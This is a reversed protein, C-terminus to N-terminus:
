HAHASAGGSPLVELLAAPTKMGRTSTGQAPIDAWDLQGSACTQLVRFWLAGAQAPLTARLVFEDYWDDPLAQAPNQVTWSIEVVDERVTKGHNDYPQALPARQTTLTWGAKPMPKAGRVGAPIFVRIGTTPSGACGHGVRFAARYSSGALAAPEELVVHAQASALSLGVILATLPKLANM